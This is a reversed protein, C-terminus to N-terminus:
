KKSSLNANEIAYDAEDQEFLKENILINCVDQKTLTVGENLSSKYINEAESVANSKWDAKCANAAIEAYQETFNKEILKNVLMRKSCTSTEATKEAEAYIDPIEGADIQAEMDKEIVWLEATDVAESDSSPTPDNKCGTASVMTGLAMVSCIFIGSIKFQNM